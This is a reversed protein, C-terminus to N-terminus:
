DVSKLAGLMDIERMKRGIMWNVLLAFLLTVACSLVFSVPRTNVQLPMDSLLAIIVYSLGIGMPIGACIGGAAFIINESLQLRKIEKDYFGLVMLTALSRIQELFSMIGLNYIVVCALSGGFVILIYAVLSASSLQEAAADTVTERTQWGDVFDYRDLEAALATRDAAAAYATTPVYPRGLSRWFGRGVYAGSVGRLIRSVKMTYYRSDGTFRVTVTDGTTVNLEDAMSQSLVAGDEPLNLVGQAYPDYLHLWSQDEAVTLAATTMRGPAYFWGATTMEFEAGETNASAALRRYQGETVGAGLDVMLDYKNQNSTLAGAYHTVADRLAFAALVLGMCFAIGVVCTLMRAKNRLANRIIYKQNFGLRRWLFPLKELLVPKTSKPPQPRMCQAPSEKLLSRAVFFASGVCCLVTLALAQGWSRYDNALGYVPLDCGTSLTEVLLRAILGNPAVGLPFGVLVVLVAHLLYYWLITRDSYGLAKFTGIASRGSEILRSMNSVMLLVACLFFLIPFLRLIPTLDETMGRLRDAALNDERALVNVVKDGLREDVARRLAADDVEDSTTICIQNYRNSGMLGSLVDQSCYAFGYRGLEPMPTTANVHYLCEPSKVLGSIRLRLVQDTGTLLMEYSDGVSLGNAAAFVDSVAMEREDAPLAGGVLYPTNIAWDAVAYVLLQVDENGREQAEWTIRPQVGAVGDIQELVRCDSRDLGAGSIWYDAVNQTQGYAATVQQVHYLVGNLATYVMVAIMTIVMVSILRPATQRLDRLFNRWIM